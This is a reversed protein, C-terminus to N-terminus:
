RHPMQQHQSKGACWDTVQENDEQMGYAILSRVSHVIKGLGMVGEKAKLSRPPFYMDLSLIRNHGSGKNEWLSFCWRWWSRRSHWFAYSGSGSPCGHWDANYSSCRARCRQLDRHFDWKVLNWRYRGELLDLFRHPDGVQIRRAYSDHLLLCLLLTLDPHDAGLDFQLHHTPCGM